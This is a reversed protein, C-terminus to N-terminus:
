IEYNNHKKQLVIMIYLLMIIQIITGVIVTIITLNSNNNALNTQNIIITGVILEIVIGTSSGIQHAFNVVGSAIGSSENSVKYVGLNTLPTFVFGQGIGIIILPITFISIGVHYYLCLVLIVMGIISIIIGQILVLINTKYEILKHINLAVIFNFGTTLILLLGTALPSLHFTSQFYLSMYYWYSFSTCLFLFRLLYGSSRLKNKFLSLDIIPQEIKRELIIFLIFLFIGLIILGTNVLNINTNMREMGLIILLISVVSLIAGLLDIKRKVLRDINPLYKLSLLIFIICLPINILFCFRWSILTTFVGGIVLGASAGIGAIASYFSIVKRKEPGDSYLTNIFALISPSVLAAAIGQGARSIILVLGNTSLGTVISFILFLSLGFLFIRKLGIVDGLKSGLLLLGGFFLVYASQVWTLLGDNLDLEQKIKHLSTMTISTDMMILFYTGLVIFLIIKKNM